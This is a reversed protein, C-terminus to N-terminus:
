ISRDVVAQARGAEVGKPSFPPLDFETGADLRAQNDGVTCPLRLSAMHKTTVSKFSRRTRQSPPSECPICYGTDGGEHARLVHQVGTPM